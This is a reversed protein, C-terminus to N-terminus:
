RKTDRTWNEALLKLVNSDSQKEILIIYTHVSCQSMWWITRYDKLTTEVSQAKPERFTEWLKGRIWQLILLFQGDVKIKFSDLPEVNSVKNQGTIKIDVIHKKFNQLIKTRQTEWTKHIGSWKLSSKPIGNINALDNFGVFPLLEYLVYKSVMLKFGSLSKLHFGSGSLHLMELTRDLTKLTEPIWFSNKFLGVFRNM